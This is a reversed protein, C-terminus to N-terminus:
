EYIIAMGLEKAYRLEETCGKSDEYGKMMVIGDCRVIIEKDMEIWFNDALKESDLLFTNLLPAIVAYGLELYKRATRRMELTRELMLDVDYNGDKRYARYPGAIYLLKM